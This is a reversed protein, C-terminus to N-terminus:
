SVLCTVVCRAVLLVVLVGVFVLVVFVYGFAFRFGLLWMDCCESVLGVWWALGISNLGFGGILM